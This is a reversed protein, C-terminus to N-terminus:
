STTSEASIERGDSLRDSFDMRGIWGVDDLSVVDRIKASSEDEVDLPAAIPIRRVRVSEEFM